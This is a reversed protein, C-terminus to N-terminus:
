CAFLDCFSTEETVSDVPLGAAKAVLLRVKAAIEERPWLGAKFDEHTFPTVTL